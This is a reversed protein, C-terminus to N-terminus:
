PKHLLPCNTPKPASGPQGPHGGFTYIVKNQLDLQRGPPPLQTMTGEVLCGWGRLDFFSIGSGYTEIRKEYMLAEMLNGCQGDYLKPVCSNSVPVGATTVPQLNGNNVRTKNILDRAAGLNGLHIEAEAVLLDMEVPYLMADQIAGLENTTRRNRGGGTGPLQTHNNFARSSSWYNSVYYRGRLVTDMLTAPPNRDTYKFYVPKILPSTSTPPQIRADNTLVQFPQVNKHEPDAAVAELWTKYSGASDAPGLLRLDVRMGGVGTVPTNNSNACFNTGSTGNATCVANSNDPPSTAAMRYVGTILPNPFGRPGFPATVGKLAHEKVRAWDVADREAPTRPSYALARAIFSHAVRAMEENTFATNYVWLDDNLPLLFTNHEAVDIVHELWKIGSDIVETYPKLDLKPVDSLDVSTGIIAASDYLLGLNVHSMGQIWEGFALLRTTNDAGSARDIIRINNEKILRPMETAAANAEYYNSWGDRAFTSNGSLSNDFEPRPEKALDWFRGSFTEISSTFEEGYASLVVWPEDQTQGGWFNIFVGAVVLEILSPDKLVEERTYATGDDPQVAAVDLTFCGTALACVGALAAIYRKHM